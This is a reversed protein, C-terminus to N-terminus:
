TVKISEKVVESISCRKYAGAISAHKFDIANHSIASVTNFLLPRLELIRCRMQLLPDNRANLLYASRNLSNEGGMTASRQNGFNFFASGSLGAILLSM